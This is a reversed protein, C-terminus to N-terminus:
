LKTLLNSFSSSLWSAHQPLMVMQPIAIWRTKGKACSGKKLEWWDSLHWMWSFRPIYLLLHHNIVMVLFFCVFWVDLDSLNTSKGHVDSINSWYTCSLWKLTHFAMISGSHQPQDLWTSHYIWNKPPQHLHDDYGSCHIPYVAVEKSPQVTVYWGRKFDDDRLTLYYSDIGFIWARAM